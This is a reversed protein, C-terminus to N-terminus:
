NATDASGAMGWRVITHRDIKAFVLKETILGVVGIVGIAALMVDTSLWEKAEFILRGLGYDTGALLEAGIVAIWARGFSQRLGVLIFPLSAPVVVRLFVTTANAGMGIASRIWLPKISRVGLWINYVMPFAAAYAVVLVTTRNGVGFWLIFVPVWALSPVPMLVSLPGKFFREVFWVRGMFIGIPVSVVSAIALGLLVRGVTYAIHVAISGDRIMIVLALGITELSPVIGVPFIGSRSFLEWACAFVLLGYFGRWTRGSILIM